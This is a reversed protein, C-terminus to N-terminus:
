MATREDIIQDKHILMIDIKEDVVPADPVDIIVHLETTQARNCLISVDKVDVIKGYSTTSIVRVKYSVEKSYENYIKISVNAVKGYPAILQYGVVKAEWIYVSLYSKVVFEDIIEGHHILRVKVKTRNEDCRISANITHKSNGPISNHKYIVSDNYLFNAIEPIFIVTVNKESDYKNEIYVTLNILNLTYSVDVREISLNGSGSPPAHEYNMFFPLLLLLIILTSVVPLTYKWLPIHRSTSHMRLKEFVSDVDVDTNVCGTKKLPIIQYPIKEVDKGVKRVAQILEAPCAVGVAAKPKKEKVIKLVMEGGPVVYVDYGLNNAEKSIINISCDKSCRRCILGYETYKGLCKDAKRLCHPLFLARDNFSTREFKRKMMKNYREVRKRVKDELSM